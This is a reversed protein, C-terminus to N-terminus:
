DSRKKHNKEEQYFFKRRNNHRAILIFSIFIASVIVVAVILKQNEKTLDKSFRQLMNRQYEYEEDYETPEFTKEVREGNLLIIHNKYSMLDEDTWFNHEVDWLSKLPVFSVRCADVKDAIIDIDETMDIYVATSYVKTYSVGSYDLAISPGVWQHGYKYVKNTHTDEPFEVLPDEEDTTFVTGFRGIVEMADDDYMWASPAQIAMPYVGQNIYYKLAITIYENMLDADIENKQNIPSHMIIAGGNDQAYRLVECFKQMAPYEGNVYVPMVSIVFPEQMSKMLDIVELLKDPDQFPYVENIVIYQAYIHPEGKYPWKWLAVERSFIAKILANEMDSVAMHTINNWKAVIYGTTDGVQLTGTKEVDSGSLFTFGNEEETLGEKESLSDFLYTVKGIETDDRVYSMRDRSSEKNYLDLYGQLMENGIIMIETDNSSREFLAQSFATSYREIHYCIIYDFQGLVAISESASAYSVQFAQYTLIEVIDSVAEMEMESAADSYIVLIDGQPVTESATDALVNVSMAVCLYIAVVLIGAIQLLSKYTTNYNM